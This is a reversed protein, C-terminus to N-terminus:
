LLGKMKKVAANFKENGDQLKAASDLFNVIEEASLSKQGDLLDAVVSEHGEWGWQGSEHILMECIKAKAQDSM